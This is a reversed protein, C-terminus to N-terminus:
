FELLEPRVRDHAPLIAGSGREERDPSMFPLIRCVLPWAARPGTIIAVQEPQVGVVREEDLHGVPQISLRIPEPADGTRLAVEARDSM